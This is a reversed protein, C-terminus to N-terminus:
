QLYQHINMALIQGAKGDLLCEHNVLYVLMWGRSFVLKNVLGGSDVSIAGIENGRNSSGRGCYSGYGGNRAM